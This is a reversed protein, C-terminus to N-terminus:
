PVEYELRERCFVQSDPDRALGQFDCQLRSHLLWPFKPEFKISTLLLLVPVVSPFLTM